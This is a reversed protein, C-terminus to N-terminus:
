NQKVTPMYIYCIFIVIFIVCCKQCQSCQLSLTDGLVGGAPREPFAYIEILKSRDLLLGGNGFIM